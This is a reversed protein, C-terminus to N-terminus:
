KRATWADNGTATAAAYALSMFFHGRYQRSWGTGWSNRVMLMEDAVLAPDLGSSKFLDSSRFNMVYGVVLVDHGGLCAEDTGPTRMIGTRDTEADDFSEYIQIGMGFPRGDALCHLYDSMSALRSYSSIKYKAAAAYVAHTPEEALRNLDYPWLNEPAAGTRQLTKFVNRTEVGADDSGTGEIQRVDYYMQLRSFAPEASPYLFCLMASGMNLGCTGAHGQDFCPPLLHRLDVSPPLLRAAAARHVVSFQHDRYDTADPRRGLYRGNPTIM